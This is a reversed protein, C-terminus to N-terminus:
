NRPNVDYLFLFQDERPRFGTVSDRTGYADNPAFLYIGYPEDRDIALMQAYIRAREDPEVATTSKRYLAWWDDSWTLLPAGRAEKGFAMYTFTNELDPPFLLGFAFLHGLTRASRETNFQGWELPRQTVTLGVASLYSSIVEGLEQDKPYRGVTYAFTVPFGSAYGAEALQSKALEPDYEFPEVEAHGFEGPLAFAGGLVAANGDFVADVISQVDVAHNLARRVQPDLLPEGGPMEANFAAIFKRMGPLSHVQVNPVGRLRDLSTDSLLYAIDVEGAELAAARSFEDPLVRFVVTEFGPEGRWYNPNASFVVRNGAEQREFVYPGTGIPARGFGEPGVESYYDPPVVYGYRALTTLLGPVPRPTRIVLRLNDVVEFEADRLMASGQAMVPQERWAEFSFRVAEADLPEGNTFEIGDRLTLQLETPSQIEWSELLWPSSRMTGTEFVALKEVTVLIVSEEAAVTTMMPNLTSPDVNHAITLTQGSALAFTSVVGIVFLVLLNPPCARRTM